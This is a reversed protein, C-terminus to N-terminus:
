ETDLLEEVAPVDCDPDADPVKAAASALVRCVNRVGWRRKAPDGGTRVGDIAFQIEVVDFGAYRFWYWLVAEQFTLDHAMLETLTAAKTEPDPTTRLVESLTPDSPDDVHAPPDRAIQRSRDNLLEIADKDAYPRHGWKKPSPPRDGDAEVNLHPHSM